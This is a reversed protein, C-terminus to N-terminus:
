ITYLGQATGDIKFYTSWYMAITPLKMTGMLVHIGLLKAIEIYNTEVFRPYLPSKSYFNTCDAMEKMLDISIYNLFYDIPQLVKQNHQFNDNDDAKFQLKKKEFTQRGYKIDRKDTTEFGLDEFEVEVEACECVLIDQVEGLEPIESLEVNLHDNEDVDDDAAVDYTNEVVDDQLPLGIADFFVNDAHPSVEIDDEGDDSLDSLESDDLMLLQEIEEVTLKKRAM